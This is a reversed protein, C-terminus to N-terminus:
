KYAHHVFGRELKTEVDKYVDGEKEWPRGREGEREKERETKRRRM